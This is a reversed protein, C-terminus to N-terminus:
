IKVIMSPCVTNLTNDKSLFSDTMGCLLCVEDYISSDSFRTVHGFKDRKFNLPDNTENYSVGMLFAKKFATKKEVATILEKELKWNSQSEIKCYALWTADIIEDTIKKMDYALYLM